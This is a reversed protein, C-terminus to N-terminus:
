GIFNLQTQPKISFLVLVKNMNIRFQTRWQTVGLTFASYLGVTGLAVWAYQQGCTFALAGCVLSLEVLTPAINFVLASLVFSIGRSGRDITKSLAGTQRNLHFASSTLCKNNNHTQYHYYLYLGLDLSHLHRFVNQAIRRISHQAVRSFVANRLDTIILQRVGM